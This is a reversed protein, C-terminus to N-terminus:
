LDVDAFAALDTLGRAARYDLYDPLSMAAPSGGRHIPAVWVLQEAHAIGPLPRLLIADIVSFLATNAGIGLALTAITIATLAPARTLQRLASRLDQAFADM